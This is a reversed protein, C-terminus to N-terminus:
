KKGGAIKNLAKQQKKAERQAGQMRSTDGKIEEARQLTQLDNQREFRKMESDPSSRAKPKSSKRSGRAM